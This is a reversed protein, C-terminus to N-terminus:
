DKEACYPCSPERIGWYVHTKEHENLAEYLFHAEAAYSEANRMLQWLMKKDMKILQKRNPPEGLTPFAVFSSNQVWKDLTFSPNGQFHKKVYDEILIRLVQSIGGERQAVQKFKEWLELDDERISISVVRAM